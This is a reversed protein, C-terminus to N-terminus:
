GLINMERMLDDGNGLQQANFNMIMQDDAFMTM